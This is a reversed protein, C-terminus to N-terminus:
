MMEGICHTPYGASSLIAISWGYINRNEAHSLYTNIIKPLSDMGNMICNIIMHLNLWCFDQLSFVVCCKM